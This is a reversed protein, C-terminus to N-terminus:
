NSDAGKQFQQLWTHNACPGCSGDWYGARPNFYRHKRSNPKKEIRYRQAMECVKKCSYYLQDPPENNADSKDKGADPFSNVVAGKQKWKFFSNYETDNKDVAQLYRVFDDMSEFDDVYIFSDPPAVRNYDRKSPGIVIPVCDWSLTRWFKESIYEACCSNELALYFKYGRIKEECETSNRGCPVGAKGFIDIKIHSNLATVFKQRHWTTQNNSSMWAILGSKLLAWNTVSTENVSIGRTRYYGYPSPFDSISRYTSSWHFSNKTFRTPILTRKLKIPTERTAYVWRQNPRYQSRLEHLRDWFLKDGRLVTVDYPFVVIDFNKTEYRKTVMQKIVVESIDTSCQCSIESYFPKFYREFIWSDGRFGEYFAVRIPQLNNLKSISNSAEFIEPQSLNIHEEGRSLYTETDQFGSNIRYQQSNNEKSENREATEKLTGDVVRLDTFFKRTIALSRFNINTYNSYYLLLFNACFSLM